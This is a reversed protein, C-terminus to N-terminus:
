AHLAALTAHFHRPHNRLFNAPAYAMEELGVTFVETSQKGEWMDYRKTVYPHIVKEAGPKPLYSEESVDYTHNGTLTSLYEVKKKGTVDHLYSQTIKQIAPNTDELRHGMEHIHVRITTNAPTHIGLDDAHARDGLSIENVKIQGGQHGIGSGGVSNLWDQAKASRDKINQHVKTPVTLKVNGSTPGGEGNRLMELIAKSAATEGTGDKLYQSVAPHTGLHATLLESKKNGYQFAAKARDEVMNELHNTLDQNPGKKLRAEVESIHKDYAGLSAPRSSEHTVSQMHVSHSDQLDYRTSSLGMKDERTLSTPKPPAKVSKSKKPAPASFDIWGPSRPENGTPLSHASGRGKKGAKFYGIAWLYRVQRGSLHRSM